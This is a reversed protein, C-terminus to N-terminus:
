EIPEHYPDTSYQAPASPLPAKPAPPMIDPPPLAGPLNIPATGQTAQPSPRPQAPPAIVSISPRPAAPATQPVRRVFANVNASEQNPYRPSQPPPAYNGAPPFVAAPNMPRPASPAAPQPAISATGETAQPSPRLAPAAYSPVKVDTRQSAPMAPPQVPQQTSGTENKRMQDRLPVFIKQNIEAIIAQAQQDPVNATRLEQLFEGPETYGLLMYSTMKALLGIVDIHLSYQKGLQEIVRQTEPSTVADQVIKPAANFWRGAELPSLDKM